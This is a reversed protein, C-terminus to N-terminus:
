GGSRLAKTPNEEYKAARSLDCGSESSVKSRKKPERQRKTPMAQQKRKRGKESVALDDVGGASRQLKMIDLQQQLELVKSQLTERSTEFTGCRDRWYGASDIYNHVVQADATRRRVKM